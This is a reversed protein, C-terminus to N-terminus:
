RFEDKISMVYCTRVMLQHGCEEGVGTSTLFKIKLFAPSIIIGIANLTKRRLIANYASPINVVLFKVMMTTLHPSQRFEVRIEIVGESYLTDCTFGVLPTQVKKLNAVSYRMKEFANLYLIDVSSGTDVLVMKVRHTNIKLSLVISDDHSGQVDGRDKESFSIIDDSYLRKKEVNMVSSFKQRSQYSGRAQKTDGGSVLGGSIVNITPTHEWSSPNDDNGRSHNKGLQPDVSGQGIKKSIV